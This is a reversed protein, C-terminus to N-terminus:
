ALAREMERRQAATPGRQNVPAGPAEELIGPLALAFEVEGDATEVRKSWRGSDLEDESTEAIARMVGEMFALTAADPRQVTGQASDQRAATAYARDGAVPFSGDEFWDADGMPLTMIQGFTVAWLGGHKRHFRRMDSAQELEAHQAPSRFFALGFATGGAGMISIHSLEEAVAPAEVRILDEDILHQWPA